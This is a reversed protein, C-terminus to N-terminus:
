SGPSMTTNAQQVQKDVHHNVKGEDNSQDCARKFAFEGILANNQERMHEYWLCDLIISLVTDGIPHTM